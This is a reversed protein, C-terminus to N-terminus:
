ISPEIAPEHDEVWMGCYWFYINAATESTQVLRLVPAYFTQVLPNPNLRGALIERDSIWLAPGISAVYMVPLGILMAVIWPWLPKREDSM